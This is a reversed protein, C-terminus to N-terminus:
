TLVAGARHEDPLDGAGSVTAAAAPRDGNRPPGILMAEAALKAAVDELFREVTRRAVRSLALADVASGVSGGPPQYRADLLLTVPGGRRLHLGLEGDLSPLLRDFHTAEGDHDVPDWSVTRWRTRGAHWPAGVTVLVPRSLSGAYATLRWVTPGEQRSAPLWREPDGDFARALAAPDGVAPLFTRISRAM